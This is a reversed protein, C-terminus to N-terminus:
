GGREHVRGSECVFRRGCLAVAHEVQHTVVAVARGDNALTRVQALVADAAIPDLASTPEDLLLVEPDNALARALAVRQREGGSLPSADRDAFEAPLGVRELLQLIRDRAVSVGRLAPGAAINAAVTGEFMPPQQLVYAVRTRFTRPSISRADVGCLSLMGSDAELLTAM